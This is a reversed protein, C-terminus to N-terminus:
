DGIRDVAFWEGYARIAVIHSRWGGNTATRAFSLIGGETVDVSDAEIVEETDKRKGPRWDKADADFTGEEWEHRRVRWKAM